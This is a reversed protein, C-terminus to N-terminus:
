GEAREIMAFWCWRDAALKAFHTLMDAPKIEIHEIPASGPKVVQRPEDPLGMAAVDLWTADMARKVECAAHRLSPFRSAEIPMHSPPRWRVLTSRRGPKGELRVFLDYPAPYALPDDEGATARYDIAAADGVLCVRFSERGWLPGGVPGFPCTEMLLEDRGVHYERRSIEERTAKRVRVEQRLTSTWSNHGTRIWWEDPHGGHREPMAEVGRVILAWGADRLRRAEHPKLTLPRTKTRTAM